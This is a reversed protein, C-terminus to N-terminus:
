RHGKFVDTFLESEEPFPSDEAFAFAAQIEAEVEREIRQRVGSDQLVIPLGWPVRTTKLDAKQFQIPFEQAEVMGKFQQYLKLLGNSTHAFRRLKSLGLAAQYSTLRFNQGLLHHFYKESGMGHSRLLQLTEQYEPHSTVVAGGEGISLSKTSQFSFAAFDGFTGVLKGDSKAGFAEAADEIVLLKHHHAWDLLEPMPAPTGYIHVIVAAKTHQTRAAEYFSATPMFTHPSVDVLRVRLGAMLAMNIPAAFTFAPILIEDGPHLLKKQLAALFIAHLASTGSSMAVVTHNDHMQSLANEFEAVEPGFSLHGKKLTDSVAHIDEETTRPCAFHIRPMRSM